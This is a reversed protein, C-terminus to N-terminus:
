KDRGLGVDVVRESSVWAVDVVNLVEDKVGRMVRFRLSMRRDRRKAGGFDTGDCLVGFISFGHGVVDM